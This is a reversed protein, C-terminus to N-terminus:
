VKEYQPGEWPLNQPNHELAKALVLNRLEKATVGSIGKVNELRELRQGFADRLDGVTRHGERIVLSNYARTPMSIDLLSVADIPHKPTEVKPIIYEKQAYRLPCNDPLESGASVCGFMFRKGTEPCPYNCDVYKVEHEDLFEEALFSPRSIYFQGSNGPHNVERTIVGELLLDKATKYKAEYFSCQDRRKPVPIKVMVSAYEIEGKIRIGKSLDDLQESSWGYDEELASVAQRYQINMSSIVSAKGGGTSVFHYTNNNKNSRSGLKIPNHIVRHGDDFFSRAEIYAAKAQEETLYMGFLQEDSM